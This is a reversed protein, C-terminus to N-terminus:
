NKWDELCMRKGIMEELKRTLWSRRKWKRKMKKDRERKELEVSSSWDNYSSVKLSFNLLDKDGRMKFAVCDYAHEIAAEATDFNGLWINAG